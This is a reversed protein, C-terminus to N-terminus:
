SEEPEGLAVNRITLGALLALLAFGVMVLLVEDLSRHFAETVGARVAPSFGEVTDPSARLVDPDVDDGPVLDFLHVDLRAALVAGLLASGLTQGLARAFIATATAAGLDRHPVVNQISITVVVGIAGNGLGAVFAAAFLLVTPASSDLSVFWLVGLAFVAAGAPPFARYRGTRKIARGVLSTSCVIGVSVPALMLGATTADLGTVIRGYLPIVIATGFNAMGFFFTTVAGSRVVPERFMSLRVIPEAVRREWWVFAAAAVAAVALLGGMPASGWDIEDGGTATALVVSGTAVLMLVAGLVDLQPDRDSDPLQLSGSVLVLAVVGLPLNIYFVWRWGVTDVFGGGIVPGLIAAAAWVSTVAALYAGRQRPPAIDGVIGAPLSQLGGGGLGQVFRALILMWMTQSVGALVSAGMFLVCAAQIARKRGHLDGLKGWLPMTTTSGLLYATFVWATQGLDGLDGAIDPVATAVILLDIAALSIALMLGAVVRRRAAPSLPAPTM